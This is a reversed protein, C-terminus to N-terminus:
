LAERAAEYQEALYKQMDRELAAQIREIADDRRAKTDTRLRSAAELLPPPVPQVDIVPIEVELGVLRLATALPIGVQIATQAVALTEKLKRLKESSSEDEPELGLQVRAENRSVVGADIHYGLIPPGIPATKTDDTGGDMLAPAAGNFEDGPDTGLDAVPSLGLLSRGENRTILGTSWGSVVRTYLADQNEQLAGVKSLDHSVRINGGFEPALDREIESAVMRWLPVLTGETFHAVAERYNSYTMHELGVKLGAVIPPVRFAAAIRSEPVNRLADFAMEALNLAIRTYTAGQEFFATRGRNDGGHRSEWQAKIREYDPTSLRVGPPFTIAGLPAADARLLAYLYRTAESDTDVERAVARLPPLAMWPQSPDVAPWKLHIIDSAPVRTKHGDGSDYEYEALWATPSPVPLMQGAHYPWLQVVRGASSRRKELYCNGGIALYSIAILQLEAEGMIPNPSRLLAGLPHQNLVAGDDDTVQFPPEPFAFALANICAFVAANAKYGESVLRQFSPDLFSTKTWSGFFPIGAVEAQKAGLLMRALGYRLQTALAM